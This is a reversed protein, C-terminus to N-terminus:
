LRDRRAAFVPGEAPLWPPPSAARERPGRESKAGGREKWTWKWENVLTDGPINYLACIFLTFLRPRTWLPGLLEQGLPTPTAGERCASANVQLELNQKVKKKQNM